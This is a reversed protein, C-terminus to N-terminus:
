FDVLGTACIAEPDASACYAHELVKKNDPNTASGSRVLIAPEQTLVMKEQLAAQMAFRLSLSSGSFSPGLVRLPERPAMEHALAAASLFARKQIGATATELPMLVLLLREVKRDRDFGRYLIVGPEVEHRGGRVKGSPADPDWDPLHFRDLVYRLAGAARQIGDLNRDFIWASYSDVYDPMTAIVIKLEPCQRREPDAEGTPTDAAPVCGPEGALRPKLGLRRQVAALLARTEQGSTLQDLLEQRRANAPGKLEPVSLTALRSTQLRTEGDVALDPDDALRDAEDQVHTPKKIDRARIEDATWRANLARRGIDPPVGLHDALIELAPRVGLFNENSANSTEQRSEAPVPTSAAMGPAPARGSLVGVATVGALGFLLFPWSTALSESREL